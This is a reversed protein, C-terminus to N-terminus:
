ILHHTITNYDAILSPKDLVDALTQSSSVIFTEMSGGHYPKHRATTGYESSQTVQQAATLLHHQQAAPNTLESTSALSHLKAPKKLSLLFSQCEELTPRHVLQVKSVLADYKQVWEPKCGPKERCGELIEVWAGLQEEVEVGKWVFKEPYLVLQWKRVKVALRSLVLCCSDVTQGIHKYTDNVAHAVNVKGARLLRCLLSTTSTFESSFVAMTQFCTNLFECCEQLQQLRLLAVILTNADPCSTPAPQLKTM